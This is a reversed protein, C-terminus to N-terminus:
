PYPVSPVEPPPVAAAIEALHRVGATASPDPTADGRRVRAVFDACLAAMPDPLDVRRAGDVLHMAYTAPDVERRATRGDLALAFPRPPAGGEQLRLTAAIEREGAAYRLSLEFGTGEHDSWRGVVDLVRPRPHPALAYLLSLLHPVADPLMAEGRSPPAMDLALTRVRALDLGPHLREFAPLAFPWQANVRLVRGRQELRRALAAAEVAHGEAGWVLPKECLVHLGRRAAWALWPLHVEHPAAVVLGDLGPLREVDDSHALPVPRHPLVRALDDAALMATALRSGVVATIDAGAAALHRALWPGVGNRTRRAGVLVLRLPPPPAASPPVM